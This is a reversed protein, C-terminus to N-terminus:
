IRNYKKRQKEKPTIKEDPKHEKIFQEFPSLEGQDKDPSKKDHYKLIRNIIQIQNLVTIRRKDGQNLQQLIDLLNDM